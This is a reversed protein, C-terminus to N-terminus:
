ASRRLASACSRGGALRMCKRCRRVSATAVPPRVHLGRNRRLSESEMRQWTVGLLPFGSYTGNKQYDDLFHGIVAVPIVYGVNEVDSSSYSQFAVGVLDGKENFVPGGSNGSNIAADIQIGLLRTNSQLYTTVEIRSVVGATISITDGGM